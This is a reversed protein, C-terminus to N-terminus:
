FLSSFILGQSHAHLLAPTLLEEFNEVLFRVEDPDLFAGDEVEEPNPTPLTDIRGASYITVFEFGTAKSAPVASLLVLRNAEIGLEERLERRAADERAEGAKVHGTASLDWFGPYIKKSPSRRQLYVRNDSDHILVMVSRHMLAQKHAEVLPVVGLPRDQADVIEVLESIGPSQDSVPKKKM